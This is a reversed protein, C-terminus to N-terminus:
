ITDSARRGAVDDRRKDGEDRRQGRTGAAYLVWVILVPQVFPRAWYYWQGFSLGAVEGGQMAVNINAIVILALLLALGIGAWPRLNPLGLRRWVVLPLLLGVAGALEAAGSIYVLETAYAQLAGPIM